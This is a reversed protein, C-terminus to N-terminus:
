QGTRGDGEDVRVVAGTGADVIVTREDPTGAAVTINWTTIADDQDLVVTDVDGETGADRAAVLADVYSVDIDRVLARQETRAQSDDDDETPDILVGTGDATLVVDYEVGDQDIVAVRWGDGASQVELVVGGDIQARATEAATVLPRDVKEVTEEVPTEPSPSAASTAQETPAAPEDSGSCGAATVALALAFLVGVSRTPITRTM